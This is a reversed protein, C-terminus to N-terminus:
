KSAKKSMHCIKVVVGSLAFLAIANPIVMLNNFMDTLEWVLDNSMLTGLFIFVLAIVSYVPAAKKGFLYIINIKGFMNWSLVTSFAFFFLCVAVFMAGAQTGFVTGFATQALNTKNIVQSVEETYGQALIGGPAYLTSIVVLANLTLVIFTDIFVSVMAVVGQDHPDKVNAQAHAHPTSGMGAENSYTGRAAGWRLALALTSGAFGGVPAMPAFASEFILVFVGPLKDINVGIVVLAGIVYILAMVPVLRETVQVLRKTGGVVIVLVILAMAIGTAIDPIGLTAANQAASVTQTSISPIIEIMLFFAFWGALFKGLTKNKFGKALYYTPGGVYEGSADKERYKIGLVIESFKSACGLLAIIWMWFVAGPGGFAIAVPVGVINAAGITSAIAATAAQFPSIANPDEPKKMMQGFTQGWMYFLHRFQFFGLRITLFLGGGALIIMLPPGWLWNTFDVIAKVIQDM